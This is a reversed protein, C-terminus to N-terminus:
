PNKKKKGRYARPLLSLPPSGVPSMGYHLTAYMIINEQQKDNNQTFTHYCAPQSVMLNITPAANYDVEVLFNVGEM